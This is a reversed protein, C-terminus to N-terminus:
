RQLLGLAERMTPPIPVPKQTARDVAVHVYRAQAAALTEGQRFVGAAYTISSTGLRTIALGIEVADPYSLSAFYTCGTEVILCIVPSTELDLLRNDLLWRNVATDIWAYYVVNNVHGYADNDHWRTQIPSFHRYDARTTRIRSASADSTKITGHDM